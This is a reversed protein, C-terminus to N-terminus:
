AKGGSMRQILGIIKETANGAESKNMAESLVSRNAMLDRIALILNSPNMDEEQLVVSFGQRKFSAANLIQDGRSAKRSLPILLNPKKLALLEFITTAGARTVVGDAMALLHPQEEIVYEFQKYGGIGNLAEDIGGKGCIHCIQYENLLEKLSDRLATNIVRSGQSGGVFMLIPKETSFGCFKRGQIADGKLLETRIPLGTYYAKDADIYKRTEPFAYCIKQAFPTSLKNALGPTIDSEHIIVPIRCVSAAWVVPTSVFGGKSFIVDPKLRRIISLAQAFGKLIRGTDTINKMDLYRRLKGGSIPYYPVGVKEILEREIGNKTGVYYIVYGKKRLEPILAINPTVHGSTGGGTLLVKLM